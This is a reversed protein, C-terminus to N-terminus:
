NPEDDIQKCKKMYRAWAPACIKDCEARAPDRIKRYEAWAEKKREEKTKMKEVKLRKDEIVNKDM